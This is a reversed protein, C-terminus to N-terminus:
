LNQPKIEERQFGPNHPRDQEETTGGPKDAHLHPVVRTRWGGEQQMNEAGWSSMEAGGVPRSSHTKKLEKTTPSGYLEIKQFNQNNKKKLNTTTRRKSTCPPM